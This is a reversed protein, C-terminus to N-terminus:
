ALMADVDESLGLGLVLPNGTMAIGGMAKGFGAPDGNRISNIGAQVYKGMPSNKFDAESTSPFAATRKKRFIKYAAGRPERSYSDRKISLVSKVQAQCQDTGPTLKYGDPCTYTPKSIKGLYLSRGHRCSGDVWRDRGDKYCEECDLGRFKVNPENKCTKGATITTRVVGNRKQVSDHYCLGAQKVKFGDPCDEGGAKGVYTCYDSTPDYGPPCEEYCMGAVESSARNKGWYSVYGAKCPEYCLGGVNKGVAKTEMMMEEGEKCKSGSCMYRAGLAGAGGAVWMLEDPEKYGSPCKEYNNEFDFINVISRVFVTGFIAEMVEQAKNIYCDGDRMVASGAYRGCYAPTLKCSGTDMNYTVGQGMNECYSRMVSPQVQCVGDKYEYYTDGTKLPWPAKCNPQKFSCLVKNTKPHKVAVGNERNCMNEMAEDIKKDVYADNEHYNAPKNKDKSILSNVEDSLKKRFEEPSNKDLPGYVLPLENPHEKQFADQISDRMDNLIKMNSLNNFGGLNFGDMLGITMEAFTVAAGVPGAAMLGSKVAGTATKAGKVANRAASNPIAKTGLRQPMKHPGKGANDLRARSTEALRADVRDAIKSALLAVAGGGVVGVVLMGTDNTTQQPARQVPKTDAITTASSSFPKDEGGSGGGGSSGASADGSSVTSAGTTSDDTGGGGKKSKQM